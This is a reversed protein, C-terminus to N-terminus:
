VARRYTQISLDARAVFLSHVPARQEFAVVDIHHQFVVVVCEFSRMREHVAHLVFEANDVQTVTGPTLKANGLLRFGPRVQSRDARGIVHREMTQFAVLAKMDGQFFGTAHCIDAGREAFAGSRLRQM